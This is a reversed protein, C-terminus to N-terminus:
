ASSPAAPRAADKQASQFREHEARAAEVTLAGSKRWGELLRNMYPMPKDVGRAFEAALDVLAAPM